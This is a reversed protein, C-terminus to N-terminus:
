DEDDTEIDFLFDNEKKPLTEIFYKKLETFEIINDITALGFMKMERQTKEFSERPDCFARKLIIKEMFIISLLINFFQSKLIVGKNYLEKLFSPLNELIENYGNNNKVSNLYINKIETLEEKSCKTYYINSLCFDLVPELNNNEIANWITKISFNNKDIKYVYGCDFVVIKYKNNDKIIKWNGPHMDGHNFNKILISDLLFIYILINIKNHNYITINNTLKEYPEGNIYKSIIFDNSHLYIEPFILFNTNKYNYQFQKTNKAELNFDLQKELNDFFSNIEFPLFNLYKILKLFQSHQKFDKEINPHKVKIAVTKGKYIGLHVQGISGSAIPNKSIETLGEINNLINNTHSFDHIKCNEFFNNLNKLLPDKINYFNDMKTAIWQALKIYICNDIQNLVRKMKNEDYKGTLYYHSYYISLLSIFKSFKYFAYIM